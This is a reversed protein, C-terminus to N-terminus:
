WRSDGVRRAPNSGACFRLEPKTSHLQATTIVVVNPNLRRVVVNPNRRRIRKRDLKFGLKLADNGIAQRIAYGIM